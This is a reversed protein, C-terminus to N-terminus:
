GVKKELRTVRKRLDGIAKDHNNKIYRGIFLLQQALEGLTSEVASLRHNTVDSLVALRENTVVAHQSLVDIKTSLGDVGDNTKEISDRIQRLLAHTIEDSM